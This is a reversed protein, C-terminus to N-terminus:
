GDLQLPLLLTLIVRCFMGVEGDEGTRVATSERELVEQDNRAEGAVGLDSM